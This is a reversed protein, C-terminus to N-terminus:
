KVKAVSCNARYANFYDGRLRVDLGHSGFVDILERGTEGGLWSIFADSLGRQFPSPVPTM